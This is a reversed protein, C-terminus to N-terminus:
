AEGKRDCEPQDLRAQIYNQVKQCVKTVKSPSGWGCLRMQSAQDEGLVKVNIWTAVEAQTLDGNAIGDRLIRNVKRLLLRYSAYQEPNHDPHPDAITELLSVTSDSGTPADGELVQGSQRRIRDIVIRRVITPLQRTLDQLSKEAYNGQEFQTLYRQIVESAIDEAEERTLSYHAIREAQARGKEEWWELFCRGLDSNEIRSEESAHMPDFPSCKSCLEM